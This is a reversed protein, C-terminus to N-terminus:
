SVHLTALTLVQNAGTLQCISQVPTTFGNTNTDFLDLKSLPAAAM